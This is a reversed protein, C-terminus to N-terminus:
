IHLELPYCCRPADYSCETKARQTYFVVESTFTDIFKQYRVGNETAICNKYSFELESKLDCVKTLMLKLPEVSEDLEEREDETMLEREDIWGETNDDDDDDNVDNRAKLEENELDGAWDDLKGKQKKPLDFQKIISKVVLNLVHLFCRTHNAAGPFETVLDSLKDIMSDNNSANDCSV